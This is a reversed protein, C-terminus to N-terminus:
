MRSIEGETEQLGDFPSADHEEDGQSDPIHEEKRPPVAGAHVGDSLIGYARQDYM